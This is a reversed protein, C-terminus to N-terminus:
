DPRAKRPKKKLPTRGSLVSEIRRAMVSSPNLNGKRWTQFEATYVSASYKIDAYTAEPHEHIFRALRVEPTDDSETMVTAPEDPASTEEAAALGPTQRPTGTSEHTTTMVPEVLRVDSDTDKGCNPEASRPKSFLRARLRWVQTEFLQKLRNPVDPPVWYHGFALTCRGNPELAGTAWGGSVAADYVMKPISETLALETLLDAALHQECFIAYAKKMSERRVRDGTEETSEVVDAHATALETMIRSIAEPSLRGLDWTDLWRLPDAGPLIFPGGPKNSWGEGPAAEAGADKVVVSAGNRHYLCKPFEQPTYTIDTM